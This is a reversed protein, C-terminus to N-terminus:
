PSRSPSVQWMKYTLPNLHVIKHAILKMPAINLWCCFMMTYTETERQATLKGDITSTGRGLEDIIVLSGDTLNSLVYSIEKMETFFTSMNHEMDDSTGIRSLIRDKVSVTAHKAPVFCGIQAM